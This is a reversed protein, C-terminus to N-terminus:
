APIIYGNARLNAATASGMGLSDAAEKVNKYFFQEDSGFVRILELLVGHLGTGKRPLKKRKNLVWVSSNEVTINPHRRVVRQHRVRGASAGGLFAQAAMHDGLGPNIDRIAAIQSRTFHGTYSIKLENAM